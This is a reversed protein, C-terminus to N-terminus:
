QSGSVVRNGSHGPRNKCVFGHDDKYTQVLDKDMFQFLACVTFSGHQEGDLVYDWDTIQKRTFTYVEGHQMSTVTSPENALVGAFGGELEKSHSLGSISL